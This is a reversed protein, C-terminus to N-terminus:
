RETAQAKKQAKQAPAAQAQVETKTEEQAQQAQAKPEPVATQPRNKNGKGAGAKAAAAIAARKEDIEIKRRANLWEAKKIVDKQSKCCYSAVTKWRQGTGPPFKLLAKHLLSIEEDSWGHLDTATKTV